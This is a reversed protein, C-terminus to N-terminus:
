RASPAAKVPVECVISMQRITEELEIEDDSKPQEPDYDTM